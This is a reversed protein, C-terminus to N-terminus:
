SGGKRGSKKPVGLVQRVVDEGETGFPLRHGESVENGHKNETEVEQGPRPSSRRSFAIPPERSPTYTSLGEMFAKVDAWRYRVLPGLKIARIKPSRRTTHDRVWRESVRLIAAVEDAVLLYEDHYDAPVSCRNQLHMNDKSM